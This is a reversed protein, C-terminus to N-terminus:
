KGQENKMIYETIEKRSDKGIPRKIRYVPIRSAFDLMRMGNEVSYLQEGLLPKIFLSEMCALFKEGGALETGEVEKGASLELIYMARVPLEEKTFTGNYPVLFKDKNEDIYITTEQELMERSMADRCLKQYPFAPAAYLEKTGQLTVVTIDDAMLSWGKKLLAETATSKGSGSNGSILIARGEKEICSCHIAPEGRQYFLISMGWGLLYANLLEETAAKKREYSIRMGGEIWLYCYSNSLFGTEKEIEVYCDEARKKEEPVPSESITIQPALAKEAEPLEVLQPFRFDSFVRKGYLKYYYM